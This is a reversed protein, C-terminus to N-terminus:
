QNETYISMPDINNEAVMPVYNDLFDKLQLYSVQNFTFMGEKEQLVELRLRFQSAIGEIAKVEKIIPQTFVKDAITNQIVRRLSSMSKTRAFKWRADKDFEIHDLCQRLIIRKFQAESVDDNNWDATVSGSPWDVRQLVCPEMFVKQKRGGTGGGRSKGDSGRTYGGSGGAFVSYIVVGVIGTFMLEVTLQIGTAAHSDATLSGQATIGSAAHVEFQVIFAVKGRAGITFTINGAIAVVGNYAVGPHQNTLDATFPIDGRCKAFLQAEVLSTNLGFGMEITARVLNVKGHIAVNYYAREDVYEKWGWSCNLEGEFVQVDADIFWGVKPVADNIQKILERVIKLMSVIRGIAEVIGFEMVAGNRLIEFPFDRKGTTSTSGVNGPNYPALGSGDTPSHQYSTGGTQNNTTIVRTGIGTTSTNGDRDTTTTSQTYSQVSGGETNGLKTGVRYSKAAPIRFTVRWEEPNYITIPLSIPLGSVIHTKKSPYTWMRMLADKIALKALETTKVTRSDDTARIAARKEKSKKTPYFEFDVKYPGAGLKDEMDSISIKQPPNPGTYTITCSDKYPLKLIQKDPVLDLGRKLDGCQRHLCGLTVTFPPEVSSVKEDKACPLTALGAISNDNDM